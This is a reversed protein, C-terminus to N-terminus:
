DGPVQETRQLLDTWLFRGTEKYHRVTLGIGIAFIAVLVCLFVFMGLGGAKAPKVKDQARTVRPSGVPPPPALDEDFDDEDEDLFGPPPPPPPPPSPPPASSKRTGVTEEEDDFKPPMPPGPPPPPPPPPALPDDEDEDWDAAGEKGEGEGGPEKKGKPVAHTVSAKPYLDEGAEVKELEDPYLEFLAEIDGIFFVSGHELEASHVMDGGIKIGNTSGKDVVMYGSRIQLLEAHYNSVGGFAVQADCDDARGVKVVERDLRYKLPAHGPPTFTIKPM